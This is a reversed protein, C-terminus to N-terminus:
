SAFGFEGDVADRWRPSQRQAEADVLPLRFPMACVQPAHCMGTQRTTIDSALRPLAVDGCSQWRLAIKQKYTYKRRM